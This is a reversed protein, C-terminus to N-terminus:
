VHRVRFDSFEMTAPLWEVRVDRVNSARPGARLDRLLAELSPREGEAMVEVSGDFRNRVWGRLALPGASRVVFIRYGVGQVDGEVVAHMRELALRSM